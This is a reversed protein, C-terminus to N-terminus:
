AGPGLLVGDILDIIARTSTNGRGPQALRSRIGGLLAVAADKDRQLKPASALLRAFAVPDHDKHTSFRNLAVAVTTNDADQISCSSTSLPGRPLRPESKPALKACEDSFVAHGGGCCACTTLPPHEAFHSACYRSGNVRPGYGCVACTESPLLAICERVAATVIVCREDPTCGPNNLAEAVARLRSRLKEVDVDMAKTEQKPPETHDLEKVIQRARAVIALRQLGASGTEISVEEIIERALRRINRSKMRRM